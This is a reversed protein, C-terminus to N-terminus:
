WNRGRCFLVSGGGKERKTTGDKKNKTSGGRATDNQAMAKKSLQTLTKQTNESAGGADMPQRLKEVNKKDIPSLM